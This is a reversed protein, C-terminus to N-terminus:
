KKTNKKKEIENNTEMQKRLQENQIDIMKQQNQAEIKRKAEELEQERLLQKNQAEIQKKM